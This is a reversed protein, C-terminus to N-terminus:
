SWSVKIKTAPSTVINRKAVTIYDNYITQVTQSCQNMNNLNLIAQKDNGVAVFGGIKM